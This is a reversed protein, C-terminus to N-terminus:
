RPLMQAIQRTLREVSEVMACHERYPSGYPDSLDDDDSPTMMESPKRGEGAVRLWSALDPEGVADLGRRALEKLTFSRRWAGPDLGVVTRLQERTMTLVLDAGDQAVLEKSLRRSQHESLDLGVDLAARRTDPPVELSGGHTGASTVVANIGRAALARGMSAAVVPSRCVNATCVVLIRLPRTSEDGM